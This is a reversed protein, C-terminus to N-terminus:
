ITMPSRTPSMVGRLRPLNTVREPYAVKWDLNVRNEPSFLVGARLSALDFEVKGFSNQLGLCLTGGAVTAPFNVSFATWQWGDSDGHMGNGGPYHMNGEPTERYTLMFKVGNYTEPAKSVGTCRYRVMFAVEKGRFPTLDVAREMWFQQGAEKGQPVDTLLINGKRASWEGKPKWEGGPLSKFGAPEAWAVLAAVAIILILIKKM